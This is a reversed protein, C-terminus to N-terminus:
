ETPAGAEDKEPEEAQDQLDVLAKRMQPPTMAPQAGSIADAVGRAVIEPDIEVGQRRLDDGVQYGVSYNIRANDGELDLRERKCGSTSLFVLALPLFVYHKMM